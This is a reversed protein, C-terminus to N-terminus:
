SLITSHYDGRTVLFGDSSSSNALDVYAIRAELTGEKSFFSIRIEIEVEMVPNATHTHVSYVTCEILTASNKAHPITICM